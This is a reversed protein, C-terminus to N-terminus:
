KIPILHGPIFPVLEGFECSWMSALRAVVICLADLRRSTADDWRRPENAQPAPAPAALPLQPQSVPKSKPERKYHPIQAADLADYITTRALNRTSALMAIGGHEAALKAINERNAKFDEALQVFSKGSLRRAHTKNMPM